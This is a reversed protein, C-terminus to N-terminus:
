QTNELTDSAGPPAPSLAAEVRAALEPSERKLFERLERERDQERRPEPSGLRSTALQVEPPPAETEPAAAPVRARLELSRAFREAAREVAERPLRELRGIHLVAQKRTAPPLAALLVSMDEQAWYAAVLALHAPDEDALLRPLDNVSIKHIFGFPDARRGGEWGLSEAALATYTELLSRAEDAGREGGQQQQQEREIEAWHAPSLGDFIVRAYSAGIADCARAFSARGTRSCLLRRAAADCARPQAVALALIKEKLEIVTTSNLEDM